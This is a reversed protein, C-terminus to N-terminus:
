TERATAWAAIQSRNTFRLKTLIHQVHNEATRESIHLKAAIERNTLGHAVCGAVEHERRTLTAPGARGALDDALEALAARLPAMGLGAATRAYRKVLALARRRDDPGSRRALASALGYGAEVAYGAAGADTCRRLADELDLVADDLEALGLEALGLAALGLYLEVPGGYYAVASGSAVHRGRYRLLNERLQAVEAMAGIRLGVLVGIAYLNLAFYPPPRWTAVPGAALFSARAAEVRGAEALVAAPGLLEIIRFAHGPTAKSDPGAHLAELVHPADPDVGEHHAVAWLLAHRVPVAAPHRIKVATAFADDACRRAEDFRARAHALAGEYRLLYWRELPGASRGLTWRLEQLEAAARDLDGNAFCLDVRWSRALAQTAADKSERGIDLLRDALEAREAVGDAGGCVTHRARLAAVVAAPDGCDAAVALAARSAEAASAPDDTYVRAEALRALLGARVPTPQTGL